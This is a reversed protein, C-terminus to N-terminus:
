AALEQVNDGREHDLLASVRRAEAEARVCRIALEEIHEASADLQRQMRAITEQQAKAKATADCARNNLYAIDASRPPTAPDHAPLPRAAILKASQVNAMAQATQAAKGAAMALTRYQRAMALAAKRKAYRMYKRRAAGKALGAALRCSESGRCSEDLAQKLQQPTMTEINM